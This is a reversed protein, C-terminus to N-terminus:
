EVKQLIPGDNNKSVKYLTDNKISQIGGKFNEGYMKNFADNTKYIYVYTYENKLKLAWDKASIDQTWIDSKYYPKGISWSDEGLNTKVPTINYRSVWYDYGNTAVSIIYVKDMEYNLIGSINTIPEYRQRKVITNQVYAPALVINRTVPTLNITFLLFLLIILPYSLKYKIDNVEEKLCATATLFMLVGLIYTSTYRSYSALNTAEYESYTFVYLILLSGTYLVGGMFIGSVVLKFRIKEEDKCVFALIMVSIALLIVIWSMFSLKFTYDTLFHETIANFFNKITIMQYHEANGNFLDKINELGVKSTNWAVNTKTIKLYISWSYKSILTFLIPCLLLAIRKFLNVRNGQKIYSKINARQTILLDLVIVMIAIIALGFGASKTLTLVFLTLSISLIKFVSIENVYYTFLVNSIMVGMIADVMISSYFDQFFALPLVLILLFRIVIKDYNRWKLNSFIPLVLSFYLINMARYLNDESFSGSLKVWLYEFLATAPPYGRFTTTSQPHNGLADFIYMNKVVTGWHSFEDWSTLMRGRQAWWNVVFFVLFMVLGPTLINGAFKKRNLYLYYCSFIASISGLTIIIYVGMKLVGVLGSLYLILIMIFIWLYLTEEIKKDFTLSIMAAGSCLLVVIFILYM